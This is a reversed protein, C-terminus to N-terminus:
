RALTFTAPGFGTERELFSVYDKASRRCISTTFCDPHPCAPNTLAFRVTAFPARTKHPLCPCSLTHFFGRAAIGAGAGSFFRFGKCLSPLDFDHLLRSSSVCPEHSRLSGGCVSRTDQAASLLLFTHPLEQTSHSSTLMYITVAGYGLPLAFTQLVKMRWNM